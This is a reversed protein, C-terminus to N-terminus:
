FCKYPIALFKNFQTDQAHQLSFLFLQPFVMQRNFWTSCNIIVYAQWTIIIKKKKISSLIYSTSIIYCSAQNQLPM